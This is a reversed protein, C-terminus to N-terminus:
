SVTLYFEMDAGNMESLDELSFARIKIIASHGGEPLESPLTIEDICMGPKVLGSSYLSNGTDKLVIEFTFYCQNEKPNLLLMDANTAGKEVTLDNVGLFEIGQGNFGCAKADAEPQLPFGTLPAQGGPIETLPANGHLMYYAGFGIFVFALCAALAAYFRKTKGHNNKKLPEDEPKPMYADAGRKEVGEEELDGPLRAGADLMIGIRAILVLNDYPKKIFENAGSKLAALEDERCNSLIAVPVSSENRLERCFDTGAGDPLDNELVIGDPMHDMLQERAGAVGVATHVYYGARELIKKTLDM